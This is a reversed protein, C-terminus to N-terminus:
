RWRTVHWSKKGRRLAITSGHLLDGTGLSREADVKQGNVSVSGNSLFERAERRSKALSTEPLLEALPVGGGDLSAKDHASSPVDAFVAELTEESLGVVEGSFLARAAAEAQDRAAEGHLIRTAERALTRQAERKGPAEAHTAELSEIAERDLVTYLRLFRGVDADSANLWFQYYAYASTRAPTDVAEGPGPASLWIAGSETKGFKTGDAKTVLPATVAYAHTEVGEPDDAEAAARKRILDIGAVINGYQDSGSAQITVGRTEHLYAFDYAQLLMYSFETYSIGQERNHLRERVSDKQVMMNVSFHKGIDRLADLFTLEGLWDLNNVVEPTRLGLNSFVRDFIGRQAETNAAVRDITQLQREASKGSPDGIMGTGGGSVMVPTHGARALHVLMMIPILNGITLSDATPDFGCYAIRPSQAPNALHERLADGGTTQHLLGRWDLEALYDDIQLAM